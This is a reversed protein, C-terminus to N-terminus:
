FGGLYEIAQDALLQLKKNAESIVNEIMDSHYDEGNAFDSFSSYCCGGLYDSYLELGQWEASVKAYFWELKGAEIDAIIEDIMCDDFCDRPNLDEPFAYTNITFIGAKRSDILM